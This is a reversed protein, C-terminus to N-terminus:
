YRSLIIGRRWSGMAKFLFNRKETFSFLFGGIYNIMAADLNMISVKTKYVEKSSKGAPEISGSRAKNLATDIKDFTNAIDKNERLGCDKFLRNLEDKEQTRVLLEQDSVVASQDLRKFFDDLDNLEHLNQRFQEEDECAKSENDVDVGAHSDLIQKILDNCHEENDKVWEKM